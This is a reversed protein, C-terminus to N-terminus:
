PGATERWEGVALAAPIVALGPHGITLNVDDFELAHMATGNVLAASPATGRTPVGWFACAEGPDFDKAAARIATGEPTTSGAIGCGLGDLLCLRAREIVEAPVADWTLTDIWDALQETLSRRTGMSDEM